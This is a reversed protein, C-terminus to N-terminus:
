WEQPEEPWANDDQVDEEASEEAADEPWVIDGNEDHHIDEENIPEEAPEDVIDTESSPVEEAPTEEVAEEANNEPYLTDTVQEETEKPTDDGVLTSYLAIQDDLTKLQETLDSKEAEALKRYKEDVKDIETQVIEKAAISSSLINKFNKLLKKNTVVM